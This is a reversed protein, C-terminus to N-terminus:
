QPKQLRKLYKSQEIVQIFLTGFFIFLTWLVPLLPYHKAIFVFLFTLFTFVQLTVLSLAPIILDIKKQKYVNAFMLTYLAQLFLSVGMVYIANSVGALMLLASTGFAWAYGVVFYM